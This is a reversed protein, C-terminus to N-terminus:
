ELNKRLLKRFVSHRQTRRLSQNSFYKRLSLPIFFEFIQQLGGSFLETVQFLRDAPFTLLREPGRKIAKNLNLTSNILGLHTFAQPFNGLHEKTKPNFEEAYLGLPTGFYMLKELWISAEKTRGLISLTDILWFISLFFAGEGEKLSDAQDNTRYVFWDETLQSLTVNLTSIVKPDSPPLFGVLPINLNSSDITKSGYYEVFAGLEQDYGQTLIDNKIEVLKSEIGNTDLPLKLKNALKLGHTLAVWCMVKSYTHHQYGHRPEWIGADKEGWEKLCTEVLNVILERMEQTAQGGSNIFLTICSLVEGFIDLQKQLFASNGTRVPKSHEYGSLNELLKEKLNHEGRIGYMIQIQDKNALCTSTLWNMFEVAEKLYGLGLFAYMTFSADRLWVFRYDWNLEGGIKEPLSTTPAAVVAGTPAFTLMKLTLASRIVQEQFIGSYRCLGAWWLWFSLTEEYTEKFSEFDLETPISDKNYFGLFFYKEQGESLNFEASVTNKSIELNSLQTSLLLVGKETTFKLLKGAQEIQPTENAFAPTVKIELRVRHNGAKAKIRRCFKPGFEGIEGKEEQTRSIPMYDTLILRGTHNFFDTKLINTKEKYIQSSQYFGVPHISFYGGKKDDLIKCFYADSDLDPLCAWDISGWKSVLASSRCNGILGYDSLKTYM